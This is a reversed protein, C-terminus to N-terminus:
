LFLLAYVDLVLGVPAARSGHEALEVIHMSLCQGLESAIQPTAECGHAGALDLLGWSCASAASPASLAATKWAAVGLAAADLLTASCAPWALDRHWHWRRLGLSAWRRQVDVQPKVV